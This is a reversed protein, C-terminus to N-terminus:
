EQYEMTRRRYIEEILASNLNIFYLFTTKKAVIKTFYGCLFKVKMIADNM